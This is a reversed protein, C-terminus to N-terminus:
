INVDVSSPVQLEVQYNNKSVETIKAVNGTGTFTCQWDMAQCIAYADSYSKSVLTKYDYTGSGRLVVLQDKSIIQKKDPYQDVIDGEGITLVRMDSEKLTTQIEAMDSGKYDYIQYRNNDTTDIEVTGNEVSIYSYINTTIEGIAPAMYDTPRKEPSVVITYLLVQPDQAPIMEVYSYLLHEYDTTGAYTGDNAIQATGTKGGIDVSTAEGYEYSGGWYSVDNAHENTPKYYVVNHMLDLVEDTTSKSLKEKTELKDESHIVEGTSPDTMSKVIHPTLMVGDNSIISYARLMQLVNATMGQGFSTNAYDLPFQPSYDCAQMDYELVGENVPTGFEFVEKMYQSYVDNGVADLILTMAVNSSYYYGVDWTLTGWSIGQDNYLWDSIYYPNGELDDGWEEKHRTGSEFTQNPNWVGEEIATAVLLTKITSGPEYCYNSFPNNWLSTNRENPDFSPLAYAGLIGGTSTDMAVTLALEYEEDAYNKNMATQIDGQIQSDITLEVNVGDNKAIYSNQDDTIPIRNADTVSSTSGNEGMLYGNLAAEVGIEGGPNGNEDPKYYGLIYSAFDGYPYYRVKKDTFEIGPLNLAEIEKKTELSLDKGYTSFEVQGEGKSLQETFLATAEADSSLNLVALLATATKDVDAVYDPEGNFDTRTNDLVAYMDYTTMNVALNQGDSTTIMGRESEIENQDLYSQQAIANLDHGQVQNTTEILLVKVITILFFVSVMSSLLIMIVRSRKKQIRRHKEKTVYRNSM